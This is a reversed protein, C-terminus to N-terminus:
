GKEARFAREYENCLRNTIDEVNHSHVHEGEAIDCSALGITVAYKVVPRGRTISTIAVKHGLPVATKADIRLEACHLTEGAATDQVVVAVNDEPEIRIAKKIAANEM